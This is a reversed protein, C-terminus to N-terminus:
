DRTTIEERPESWDVRCASVNSGIPLISGNYSRSVASSEYHNFFHEWKYIVKMIKCKRIWRLEQKCITCIISYVRLMSSVKDFWSAKWTWHITQLPGKPSAKEDSISSTHSATRCQPTSRWRQRSSPWLVSGFTVSFTDKSLSRMAFGSKASVRQNGM